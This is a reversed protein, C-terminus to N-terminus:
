QKSGRQLEVMQTDLPQMKVQVEQPAPYTTAQEKCAQLQELMRHNLMQTELFSLYKSKAQM